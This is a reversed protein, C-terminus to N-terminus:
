GEVAAFIPNAPRDYVDATKRRNVVDERVACGERSVKVVHERLANWSDERGDVQKVMGGATPSAFRLNPMVGPWIVCACRGVLGNVGETLGEDPWRPGNLSQVQSM